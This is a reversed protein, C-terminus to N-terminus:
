IEEEKHQMYAVHAAHVTYFCGLYKGRCQAQYPKSRMRPAPYVGVPLTRDSRNSNSANDSPNTYRLNTITDNARNRDIHDLMQTPWEGYHAWWVVHSRKTPRGKRPSGHYINMTHYGDRLCTFVEQGKANHITGVVCDITYRKLKELVEDPPVKPKYYAKSM